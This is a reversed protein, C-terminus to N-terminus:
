VSFTGSPTARKLARYAASAGSRLKDTWYNGRGTIIIPGSGGRYNRRYQGRSFVRRRRTTRGRGRRYRQLIHRKLINYQGKPVRWGQPVQLYDAQVARSTSGPGVVDMDDLYGGEPIMTTTADVMRRKAESDLARGVIERARKSM